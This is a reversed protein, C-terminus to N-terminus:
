EPLGLLRKGRSTLCRILVPEIVFLENIGKAIVPAIMKEIFKRSLRSFTEGDLRDLYVDATKERNGYEFVFRGFM